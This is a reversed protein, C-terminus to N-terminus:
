ASLATVTLFSELSSLAQVARKSGTATVHAELIGRLKPFDAETVSEVTVSDRNVRGPFVGAPDWVFAQGGSMGAGFNLGTEGLVVVVGGTMYECGHDGCGEVVAVAGSNRVAFREGARGAVFLEGKSAGYLCTNGILVDNERAGSPRISVRGGALSKAVGDQAEGELSISIGQPLFAGLSQGAQGYLEIELLGPELGLDGYRKAVEGAMRLGISRDANSVKYTRKEARKAEVSARFDEWIMEDTTAAAIHWDETELRRATGVPPKLIADLSVRKAREPLNTKQKLLEVHGIIDALCRVGMQALILRVNEALFYMFAIVHDPTGPYRARLDERQTAIGVPCTNAHCQRAMVCGAAVLPATGFGFEEAGMMAAIVVDRGTKLGGDVRLKVRKRLGNAVLVQQAETLGLEWPLGAHKISALPSAGTGGDHGSIQIARAGGKAVGAAITGVGACSVLKVCIPKQSVQKLDHILQALDEISYIDHHPPPSILMVGPVSGRTAAIDPTVKDGPIQGGEGPKSGQAMKIEIEQASVLYSPTVGFRGSAVQKIASSAVDTADPQWAGLMRGEAKAGYPGFRAHDEGGEGSNSKAGIRNMAVALTEHTEKSLAGFSMAQTCFRKVIEDASEVEDLSIPNAEWTLLDRLAMPPREDVARRYEEFAASDQERVAKHLPKFVSPNFAHYEGDRRFRYIGQDKLRADEGWAQAHFELVHAALEELGVGGIRSPTGKFLSNVLDDNLGLIEFTQAGRYSAMASIGLKAMIKKLGKEVVAIYTEVADNEPMLRSAVEIASDIALRPYVLLAGFSLLCAIDHDELVDSADCVVAVKMRLGLEILGFHIAGNALLIPLPAREASVNADSLVLIQSGAAIADRAEDVIQKLRLVMGDPGSAVPWTTDLVHVGFYEQEFIQRFERPGLVPSRFEVLAADPDDGGLISGVSGLRTTLSMVLAERIPDIPPNTVQAFSQKFFRYLRQPNESLVALPTDDGMSGIPERKEIVIPELIREAHERSWGFTKQRAVLSAESGAVDLDQPEKLERLHSSVLDEWAGMQELEHRIEHDRFIRGTSINVSLMQGPGLRGKERIKEEPVDVVGAESAVIVREDTIWYRLPRLGNRDLAAGVSRGNTFVLAAPGDWPELMAAHYRYFAKMAASLPKTEYAEPVLARVALVLNHGVLNPRKGQSGVSLLELVNDLAMSDSGRPQIVPVVDDLASEFAGATKPEVLWGRERALQRNINGHVTNIEGNHALYRLPQALDWRVASNTSYRQHFLVVATQYKPNQLDPYYVSLQSPKVLAKYVITRASMSVVSFGDVDALAREMRRRALYLPQELDTGGIVMQLLRPAINREREGLADRLVPPERTGLLELDFASLVDRVTQLIRADQDAEAPLFVQALARGSASTNGAAPVDAEVLAWPIQTMVGAGDGSVGDEHVVGRHQLKELAVLGEKLVQHSARGEIDCVFGIGCADREREWIPEPSTQSERM